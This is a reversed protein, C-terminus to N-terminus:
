TWVHKKPRGPGRKTVPRPSSEEIKEAIGRFILVNGLEDDVVYEVGPYYKKREHEHLTTGRTPLAKVKM